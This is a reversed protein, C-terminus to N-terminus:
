NWLFAFLISIIGAGIYFLRGGDRLKTVVVDVLEGIAPIVKQIALPVTQDEKNINSLLEEVTMQELHNYYSDAETIKEKM